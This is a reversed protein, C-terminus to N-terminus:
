CCDEKKGKEGSTFKYFVFAEADGAEKSSVVGGYIQRLLLRMEPLYLHTLFVLTVGSGPNIDRSNGCVVIPWSCRCSHHQPAAFVRKILLTVFM